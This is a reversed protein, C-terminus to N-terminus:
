FWNLIPNRMKRLNKILSNIAGTTGIKISNEASGLMRVNKKYTDYDTETLLNGESDFLKMSIIVQNSFVYKGLGVKFYKVKPVIAYEADNNKCYEIITQADINDYEFPLDARIMTGHDTSSIKDSVASFFAQNTPEKIEEINPFVEPNFYITKSEKIIESAKPMEKRQASVRTIGVVVLTLAGAFIFLKKM